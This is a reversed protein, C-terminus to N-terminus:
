ALSAPEALGPAPAPTTQRHSLEELAAAPGGGPAKRGAVLKGCLRETASHKRLPRMGLGAPCAGHPLRTQRQVTRGAVARRGSVIRPQLVICYYLVIVICYNYYALSIGLAAVAVSERSMISNANLLGLMCLLKRM